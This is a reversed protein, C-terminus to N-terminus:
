VHLLFSINMLLISDLHTPLTINNGAISALAIGLAYPGGCLMAGMCARM